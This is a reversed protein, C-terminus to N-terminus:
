GQFRRLYDAVAHHSQGAALDAATQGFPDPTAADAGFALLLECLPQHGAHGALHLPSLGQAGADPDAGRRLLLTAVGLRRGAVASHLPTNAMENRSIAAPDAGAELLLLATDEHGFFAALHLLTWGDHARSALAGPNIGLYERVMDTRGLAAAEFVNLPAGAATLAEVIEPSGVYAALLIPSHGEQDTTRLAAPDRQVIERVRKV